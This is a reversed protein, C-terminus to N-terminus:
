QDRQVCSFKNEKKKRKYSWFNGKNIIAANINYALSQLVNEFAPFHFTTRLRSTSGAM